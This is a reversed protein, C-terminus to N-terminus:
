ALSRRRRSRKRQERQWLAVAGPCSLCFKRVIEGRWEEEEPKPKARNAECQRPTVFANWEPCYYLRVGHLVKPHKMEM